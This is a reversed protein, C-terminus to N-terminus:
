RGASVAHPRIHSTIVRAMESPGLPEELYDAAGLHMATLYSVMDHWRTLILVPTFRNLEIARELVSRGEFAATGQSVIVLEWPEEALLRLGEDYTACATVRCNLSRLLAHHYARQQFNEHVLLLRAGQPTVRADPNRMERTPAPM